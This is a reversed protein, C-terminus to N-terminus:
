SIFSAGMVYFYPRLLVPTKSKLGWRSSRTDLEVMQSKKFGAHPTPFSHVDYYRLAQGICFCLSTVNSYFGGLFCKKNSSILGHGGAEEMLISSM